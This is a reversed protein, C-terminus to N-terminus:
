TSFQVGESLRSLGGLHNLLLLDPPIGWLLWLRRCLAGPPPPHEPPLASPPSSLTAVIPYGYRTPGHSQADQRARTAPSNRTPRKEEIM